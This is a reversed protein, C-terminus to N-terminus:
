PMVSWAVDIEDTAASAGLVVDWPSSPAHRVFHFAAAMPRRGEDDVVVRGEGAFQADRLSITCLAAGRGAIEMRGAAEVVVPVPRCAGGADAICVEQPPAGEGGGGCIGSPPLWPRRSLDTWRLEGSEIAAAEAAAIHRELRRGEGKLISIFRCDPGASWGPTSALVLAALLFHILSSRKM